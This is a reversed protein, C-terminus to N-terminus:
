TALVQASPHAKVIVALASSVVTACALGTAANLWSIGATPATDFLEAAVIGFIRLCTFTVPVAVVFAVIGLRAGERAAGAILRRMNAGLSLRIRDNVHERLARAALLGGASAIVVLLLVAATAVLGLVLARYKATLVEMVPVLNADHAPQQKPQEAQVAAM